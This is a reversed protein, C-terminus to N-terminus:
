ENWRMLVTVQAMYGNCSAGKPEDPGCAPDTLKISKTQESREVKVFHYDGGGVGSYTGGSQPVTLTENNMLLMFKRYLLWLNTRTPAFLTVLLFADSVKPEATDNGGTLTLQNSDAYLPTICIQYTKQKKFLLWEANVSPVWVGDPSAINTTIFNSLTTHPDIAPVGSDTIAM